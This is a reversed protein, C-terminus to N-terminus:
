RETPIKSRALVIFYINKCNISKVLENRKATALFLMRAGPSNQNARRWKRCSHWCCCCCCGRCRRCGCCRCRCHKSHTALFDLRLPTFNAHSSNHTLKRRVIPRIATKIAVWFCLLNPTAGLKVQSRRRSRSSDLVLVLPMARADPQYPFRLFIRKQCKHHVSLRLM